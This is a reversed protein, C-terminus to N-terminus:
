DNRFVDMPSLRLTGLAPLTGFVVAFMVTTVFVRFFDSLTLAGIQLVPMRNSLYTWLSASRLLVFGATAGFISVFLVESLVMMMIEKSKAGLAKLIGIERRRQALAILMNSAVLLAAISYTIVVVVGRLDMPAGAQRIEEPRALPEPYRFVPEPQGRNWADQVEAPVSVVTDQPFLSAVDAANNELFALNAVRIAMETVPLPLGGSAEYWMRSLTLQPVLIQPTTWYLQETLLNGMENQWALVRTPLAYRGVVKLDYSKRNTYDFCYNGAQDMRVAPVEVTITSGVALQQYGPLMPRRSDVLCHPKGDDCRIFARGATIIEDWDMDKDLVPDRSRLPSFWAQDTGKEDVRRILSPMSQYLSVGTVYNKKSLGSKVIRDLSIFNGSESSRRLFGQLFYESHFSILDSMVDQPLRDYEWEVNDGSSIDARSPRFKGPYVIIDGGIFQRQVKFAESPYGQAVPLTSSLIMAALAMGVISLVSRGMNRRVNTLGLRVFVM